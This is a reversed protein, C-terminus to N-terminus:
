KQYQVEALIETLKPHDEEIFVDIGYGEDLGTEEYFTPELSIPKESLIPLLEAPFDGSSVTIPQLYDSRTNDTRYDEYYLNQQRNKDKLWAIIFVIMYWGLLSMAVLKTFFEWTIKDLGFMKKSKNHLYETITERNNGPNINAFTHCCFSLKEWPRGL